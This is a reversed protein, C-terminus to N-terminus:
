ENKAPQKELTEESTRSEEGEDLAATAAKFAAVAQKHKADDLAALKEFYDKRQHQFKIIEQPTAHRILDERNYDITDRQSYKVAEYTSLMKSKILVVHGGAVVAHDGAKFGSM